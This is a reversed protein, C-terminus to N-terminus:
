SNQLILQKRNETQALYKSYLEGRENDDLNYIIKTNLDILLNRENFLLKNDSLLYVRQSKLLKLDVIVKTAPDVKIHSTIFGGLYDYNNRSDDTSIIYSDQRSSGLAYYVYNGEYLYLKINEQAIKM